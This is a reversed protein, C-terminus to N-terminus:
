YVPLEIDQFLAELERKDRLAVAQDVQQRHLHPAFLEIFDYLYGRIFMDRRLGINTVSAGFLDRADIAVLDHDAVPDYAMKAVIGVGLGLRVYTKIVDADVATLVIQPHLNAREFAHDLQSRGTFGFVYTILPYRAVDELSVSSQQALPHDQRVLMCRHWRYCPLMVLNDFLELAETAIALDAVSRSAMEAIQLPTGQHLNLTIGPYRQ